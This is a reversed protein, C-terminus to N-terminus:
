REEKPQGILARISARISMLASYAHMGSYESITTDILSACGELADRRAAQLCADCGRVRGCSERQLEADCVDCYLKERQLEQLAAEARMRREVEAKYLLGSPTQKCTDLAAKLRENEARLADIERLQELSGTLLDIFAQQSKALDTKLADRETEVRAIYQQTTEFPPQIDCEPDGCVLDCECNPYGHQRDDPIRAQASQWDPHRANLHERLAKDQEDFSSIGETTFDCRVCRAFGVRQMNNVQETM